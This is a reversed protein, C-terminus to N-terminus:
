ISQWKVAGEKLMELMFLDIADRVSSPVGEKRKTQHLRWGRGMTSMRGIVRGKENFKKTLEQLFDLRDTDTIM